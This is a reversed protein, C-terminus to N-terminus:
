EQLGVFMQLSHVKKPLVSTIQQHVQLITKMKVAFAAYSVGKIPQDSDTFHYGLPPAPQTWRSWTKKKTASLCVRSFPSKRSAVHQASVSIV